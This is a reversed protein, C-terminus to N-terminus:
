RNSAYVTYYKDRIHQLKQSIHVLLWSIPRLHLVGQLTIFKNLSLKQVIYVSKM